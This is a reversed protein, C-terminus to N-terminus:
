VRLKEADIEFQNPAACQVEGRVYGWWHARHYNRAPSAEDKERFAYVGAYNPEEARM